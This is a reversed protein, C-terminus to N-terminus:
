DKFKFALLERSRIMDSEDVKLGLASLRGMEKLPRGDIDVCVCAGDIIKARIAGKGSKGGKLQPADLIGTTVLDALTAPDSYPDKIGALTAHQSIGSLLVMAESLLDNKRSQVAPDLAMDPLGHLSDQVIRGVIKCSKVIDGPKAAHDGECFSVVHMIDPKVAMQMM